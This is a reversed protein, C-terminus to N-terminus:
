RLYVVASLLYSQLKFLVNTYYVSFITVSNTIIIKLTFLFHTKNAARDLMRSNGRWQQTLVPGKHAKNLSVAMQPGTLCRTQWVLCEQARPGVVGRETSNLALRFQETFPITCLMTFARLYRPLRECLIAKIKWFLFLRKSDLVSGM